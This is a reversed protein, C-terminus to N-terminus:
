GNALSPNKDLLDFRLWTALWKNYESFTLKWFQRGWPEFGGPTVPHKYIEIHPMQKKFMLLSRAMHYNSTVLRISKVNKNKIWNQTETANSATNSASYGLTVCCRIKEKNGDWLAILEETKVKGNVGSILLQKGSGEALLDLGENVRKDGGTLVIIADTKATEDYPKMSAVSAAFWMWGVAWLLGLTFLATFCYAFLRLIM